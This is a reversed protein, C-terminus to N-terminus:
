SEATNRNNLYEELEALGAPKGIEYFRETVEYAALRNLDVQKRLISELDLPLPADRYEAILEKRCGTFGYDICDVEDPRASKSYFVVRSDAVRVNSKDFLGRNRYVSMMAPTGAKEFAAEMARYDM